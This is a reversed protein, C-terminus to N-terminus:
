LKHLSFGQISEVSQISLLPVGQERWPKTIQMQMPLKCSGRTIIVDVSKDVPM